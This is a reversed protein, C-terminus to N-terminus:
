KIYGLEKSLQQSYKNITLSVNKIDTTKDHLRNLFPTTLSAIAYGSYDFIPYSINTIGVIKLSKVVECRDKKIKYIIKKNYKKELNILQSKPINKSKEIGLFIKRRELRRNREEDSQFTLIVRGSSTELLDFSSGIAVHYNYSSGSDYQAIVLLKGATYISLHVSQWTKTVIEKMIPTAKELLTKTPNFSAALNLLKFSLKYQDTSNDFELYNRERLTNLMRYIENVSKKLHSAIKAQTLGVDSIALLEIIDLGKDLAPARYSSNKMLDFNNQVYVIYKM